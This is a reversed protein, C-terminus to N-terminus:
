TRFVYYDGFTDESGDYSSFHHGYGDASAYEQQVEALKDMSIILKGVAEFAEVQQMAEIVDEDIDLVYALFYARFCGLVYEDASLEEQQIEDIADERIFRYSASGDRIDDADGSMEEAIDRWDDGVIDRLEKCQSLTLKM